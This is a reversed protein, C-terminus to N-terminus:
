TPVVVGSNLSLQSVLFWFFLILMFFQLFLYFSVKCVRKQLMFSEEVILSDGVYKELEEAKNKLVSARSEAGVLKNLVHEQNESLEEQEELLKLQLDAGVKLNQMVKTIALYEVEAEIKQRFLEQVEYEVERHKEESLGVTNPSEEKPFKGSSLVTELEVIRSDKVALVGQLEELKSELLNVHQTLNLIQFELPNSVGQKIEEASFHGSLGSKHLELDFATIGASASSCKATDDDPSVVETDIERFKQLEAFACV